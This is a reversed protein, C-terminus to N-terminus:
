ISYPRPAGVNPDNPDSEGLHNNSYNINQWGTGGDQAHTLWEDTFGSPVDRAELPNHVWNNHVEGNQVDEGRFTMFPAYPDGSAVNDGVRSTNHHLETYTGGPSHQDFVHALAPGDILNYRAEFGGNGTAGVVHRFHYVHNYEMLLGTTAVAGIIYGVGKMNAKYLESHHVHADDGNLHVLHNFGWIECNACEGGAGLEIGSSYYRGNYEQWDQDHLPGRIRLGSVCGGDGVKVVGQSAWDDYGDDAYLLAGDSGDLGRDSAVTVGGDFVARRDSMDIVADGEVFVVDGSTADISADIVGRHTSVTYDADNATVDRPYGDGGGYHHNVAEEGNSNGTDSGSVRSDIIQMLTDRDVLGGLGEGPRVNHDAIESTVDEGGYKLAFAGEGSYREFKYPKESLQYADGYLNGTSGVLVYSGDPFRTINDNEEEAKLKEDDPANHKEIDGYGHLVYETATNEETTWIEFIAM